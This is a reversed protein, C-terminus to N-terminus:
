LHQNHVCLSPILDNTARATVDYTIATEQPFYSQRDQAILLTGLAIEGQPIQRCTM